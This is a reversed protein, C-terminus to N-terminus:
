QQEGAPDGRVVSGRAPVARIATDASTYQPFIEALGCIEIVRKVLHHTYVVRLWGRDGLRQRATALAHVVSSDVFSVDVLDLVIQDQGQDIMANLEDVWGTDAADLEGALALVVPAGDLTPASGM